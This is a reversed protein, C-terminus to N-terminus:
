SEAKTYGEPPIVTHIYTILQGCFPCFHAKEPGLVLGNVSLKARGMPDCCAVALRVSSSRKITETTIKEITPM